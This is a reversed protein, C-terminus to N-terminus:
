EEYVKTIDPRHHGLRESVEKRAAKDSYGRARLLAYTRQAYTHRLAHWGYGKDAREKKGKKIMQKRNPYLLAYLHNSMWNTFSDKQRKVSHTYDDCFLYDASRKGKSKAYELIKELIETQEKTDFPIDREQGGKGNYVHLQKSKVADELVHIRLYTLEDKRLGFNKVITVGMAVDYRKMGIARTIIAAIESELLGRNYKTPERKQLKLEKNEPLINKSGSHNHVFRICSLETDIYSPKLGRSQLYEVYARLHRAEVNKFNKLHYRAALFDCFRKCAADCRKKSAISNENCRLIKKVQVQLNWSMKKIKKAIEEPPLEKVAKEVQREFEEASFVSWPQKDLQELISETKENGVM